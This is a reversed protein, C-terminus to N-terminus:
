RGEVRALVPPLYVGLYATMLRTAERCIPDSLEGSQQYGVALLKDAAQMALAFIDVDNPLPPLVFVEALCQQFRRGLLQDHQQDAQRIAALDHGGLLLERAAPNGRYYDQFRQEIDAVLAMWSSAHSVPPTQLIGDLELFLREALAALVDSVQPFFHYVSSPPIDAQEAIAYISLASLGGQDLLATTAELIRDIREQSSARRKPASRSM